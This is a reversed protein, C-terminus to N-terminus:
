KTKLKMDSEQYLFHVAAGLLNADNQFQCIKLQYRLDNANTKDLLADIRRSVQEILDQEKSMAGGIAVM